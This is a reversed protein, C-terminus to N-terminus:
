CSNGLDRQAGLQDALKARNLSRPGADSATANSYLTRTLVLARCTRRTLFNFPSSTTTGRPKLWRRMGSSSSALRSHIALAALRTSARRSSISDSGGRSGSRITRGATPSSHTTSYREGPGAPAPEATRTRLVASKRSTNVPSRPSKSPHLRARHRISLRRARSASTGRKASSAPM